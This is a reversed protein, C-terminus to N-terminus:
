QAPKAPCQNVPAGKQLDAGKDLTDVRLYNAQFFANANAPNGCLGGLFLETAQGRVGGWGETADVTVVLTNGESAIAHIMVGGEFKQGVMAQLNQAAQAATPATATQAMAPVAAVGLALAVAMRVIM